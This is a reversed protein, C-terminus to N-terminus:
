FLNMMLLGEDSKFLNYALPLITKGKYKFPKDSYNSIIEDGNSWRSVFVDKAIEDHFVFFHFQLYKLKQWDDYIRKMPALDSYNVYYFSPRGGWEIVKLRARAATKLASYPKNEDSLRESSAREYPADITGYYPNSLIIGNFVLENLPVDKDVLKSADSYVHWRVYLGYDLVEACHDFKCESSFGGFEKRLKEGILIQYNATGQRTLPHLPNCCQTPQRATTVDVHYTGNIGIDKLKAIDEDLYRHYFTQFCSHYARGGPWYKYTRLTGDHNKNTNLPDFREAYDYYNHHNTHVTMRYGLSKGFAVAERMKAEGGFEELVPFLDPFPGDHGGKHWGVFCVEVDDMGLDKFNQMIKKAGDFTHDVIMKPKYGKKSWADPPASRRDCRGFKIRTYITNASNALTPNNKVREVLPVLGRESIMYNRYVEAIGSYNAKDGDLKYFDIIIDEYPDFQMEAIRFLPYNKYVGNKVEVIHSYELRLGKVIAAFCGRPTKMGYVQMPVQRNRLSKANDLRFTGYEGRQTLFFGDEGKKAVAWDHIVAITDIDRTIKRVPIHLRWINEKINELKVKQESVSKDLKTTRITATDIAFLTSVGFCVLM